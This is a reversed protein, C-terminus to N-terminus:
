LRTISYTVRIHQGGSDNLVIQYTVSSTVNSLPISLEEKGLDEPANNGGGDYDFLDAVVVLNSNTLESATVTYTNSAMLPYDSLGVAIAETDNKSWLINEETVNGNVRKSSITGYIELTEGEAEKIEIGTIKLLDVQFTIDEDIPIEDDEKVVCSTFTSFLTIFLFTRLITSFILNRQKM